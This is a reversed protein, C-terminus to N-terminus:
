NFFYHLNFINDQWTLQFKKVYIILSLHHAIYDLLQTLFSITNIVSFELYNNCMMNKLPYIISEESLITSTNKKLM